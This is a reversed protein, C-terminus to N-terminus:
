IGARLGSVSVNKKIKETGRPSNRSLVNLNPWSRKRGFGKLNIM